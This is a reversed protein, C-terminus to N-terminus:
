FLEKIHAIRLQKRYARRVSKSLSPIRDQPIQLHEAIREHTLREGVNALLFETPLDSVFDFYKRQEDTRLRERVSQM